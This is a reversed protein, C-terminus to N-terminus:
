PTDLARYLIETLYILHNQLFRQYTALSNKAFAAMKSEQGVQIKDNQLGAAKDHQTHFKLVM